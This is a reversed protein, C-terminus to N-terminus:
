VSQAIRGVGKCTYYWIIINRSVFIGEGGVWLILNGTSQESKYTQVTCPSLFELFLYEKRSVECHFLLFAVLKEWNVGRRGTIAHSYKCIWLSVFSVWNNFKLHKRDETCVLLCKTSKFVCNVSNLVLVSKKCNEAETVWNESLTM